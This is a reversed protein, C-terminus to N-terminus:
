FNLKREILNGNQNSEGNKVSSDNKRPLLNVDEAPKPVIKMGRVNDNGGIRVNSDNMRYNKSSTNRPQRRKKIFMFIGIFILIFILIVILAIVWPTSGTSTKDSPKSEEQRKIPEKTSLPSEPKSGHPEPPVDPKKDDSYSITPAITTAIQPTTPPPTTVQSGSDFMVTQSFTELKGQKVGVRVQFIFNFFVYNLFLM